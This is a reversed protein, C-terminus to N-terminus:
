KSVLDDSTGIEGDLGGDIAKTVNMYSDYELKQSQSFATSGGIVPNQISVTSDMAIFVVLDEALTDM